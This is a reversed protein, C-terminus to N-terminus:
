ENVESSLLHKDIYIDQSFFFFLGPFTLTKNFQFWTNGMTGDGYATCMGDMNINEEPTHPPKKWAQSHNPPLRSSSMDGTLLVLFGACVPLSAGIRRSVPFPSLCQSFPFPFNWLPFLPSLQGVHSLTPLIPQPHERPIGSPRSHDQRVWPPESLGRTIKVSGEEDPTQLM